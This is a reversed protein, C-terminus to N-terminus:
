CGRINSFPYQRVTNITNFGICAVSWVFICSVDVVGFFSNDIDGTACKASFDPGMDVLLKRLSERAMIIASTLTGFNSECRPSANNVSQRVFIQLVEEIL